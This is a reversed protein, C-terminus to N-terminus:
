KVQPKGGWAGVETLLEGKEDLINLKRTREHPGPSDKKRNGKVLMHSSELNKHGTQIPLTEKLRKKKTPKEIGERSNEGKCHEIDFHV